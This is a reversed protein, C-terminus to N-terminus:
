LFLDVRLRGANSKLSESVVHSHIQLLFGLSQLVTGVAEFSKGAEPM